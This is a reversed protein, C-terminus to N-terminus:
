LGTTDSRSPYSAHNTMIVLIQRDKIAASEANAFTMFAGGILLLASSVLTKLMM